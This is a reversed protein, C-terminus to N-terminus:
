FLPNFIMICNYRIELYMLTRKAFFSYKKAFFSDKKAFFSDKERFLLGKRLKFDKERFLSKQTRNLTVRFFVRVPM